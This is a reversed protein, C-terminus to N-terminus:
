AQAEAALRFFARLADNIVRTKVGRSRGKTVRNFETRVDKELQFSM